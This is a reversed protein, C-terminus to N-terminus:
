MLLWSSMIVLENIGRGTTEKGDAEDSVQGISTAKVLRPKGETKPHRTCLSAMSLGEDVYGEYAV